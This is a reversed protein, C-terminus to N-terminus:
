LGSKKLRMEFCAGPQMNRLRITGGQQEVVDRVVTLGLGSAEDRSRTTFFPEFIESEISADVGPGNDAVSVIVETEGEELGVRITGADRGALAQEANVILNLIALQLLAASGSVSFRGGPAAELALSVGARSAAFSRLAISRTALDHLNVRSRDDWRQRAFMLVESVAAAARLNQAAIRQLGDAVSPPLGPTGQLLETTGGIVQLANNVEHAAGSLLRAITAARSLTVLDARSPSKASQQSM